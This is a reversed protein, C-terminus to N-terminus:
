SLAAGCAAVTAVAALGISGSGGLTALAAAGAAGGSLVTAAGVAAFFGIGAGCVLGDWFSGGEIASLEM